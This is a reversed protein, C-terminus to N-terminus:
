CFRVSLGGLSGFDSVVEDGQTVAFPPICTGTTVVEGASLVLGLGSLENVLWTLAVRPDGLVNAGKGWHAFKGSVKAKVAHEVLDLARWSGEAADGLVFKHACADDAILQAEGVTTFPEYRSDPVEIAPHVTAVAEMVENVDYKTERPVLSRGMRFAFEVEAVRMRNGTLSIPTTAILVDKQLIRGAMPGDVNVHKQGAASTAAIKWGFLPSTTREMLAAQIAYGDLRTRPRIEEPLQDICAGREWCDFLFISAAQVAKRDFM